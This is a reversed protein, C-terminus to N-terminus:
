GRYEVAVQGRAKTKQKDKTEKKTESCTEIVPFVV